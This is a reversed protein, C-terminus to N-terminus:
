TSVAGTEGYERALRQIAAEFETPNTSRYGLYHSGLWNVWLTEGDWLLTTECPNGSLGGGEQFYYIKVQVPGQPQHLLPLLTFPDGLFRFGEMERKLADYADQPMSFSLGATFETEAPIAEGGRVTWPPLTGAFPRPFLTWVLVLALLVWLVRRLTKKKAHAANM